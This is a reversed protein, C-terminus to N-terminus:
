CIRFTIGLSFSSEPNVLVRDPPRDARYLRPGCALRGVKSTELTNTNGDVASRVLDLDALQRTTPMAGGPSIATIGIGSSGVHVLLTEGPQLRGREFVNTWVTFFTEPIGAAEEM